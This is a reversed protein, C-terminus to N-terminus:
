WVFGQISDLKATRDIIARLLFNQIRFIKPQDM